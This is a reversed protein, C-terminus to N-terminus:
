LIDWDDNGYPDSLQTYSTAPLLLTLLTSRNALEMADPGSEHQAAHDQSLIDNRVALDASEIM